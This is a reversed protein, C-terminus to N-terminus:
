PMTPAAVKPPATSEVVVMSGIVMSNQVATMLPITATGIMAAIM